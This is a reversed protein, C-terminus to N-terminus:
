GTRDMVTLAELSPRAEALADRIEKLLKEAGDLDGASACNELERCAGTLRDIGFTAGNSKLTHACRRVDGANSATIATELEALQAPSEALFIGVLEALFERDDGTSERLATLASTNLPQGM